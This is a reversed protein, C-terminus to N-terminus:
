NPRVCSAHLQTAALTGIRYPVTYPRFRAKRKSHCFGLVHCYEHLLQAALYEVGNDSVYRKNIHIVNKKDTTSAEENATYDFAVKLNIVNDAQTGEEQGSRILAIIEKNNKGNKRLCKVKLFAEEFEKSNVLTALLVTASDLKGAFQQDDFNNTQNGLSDFPQTQVKTQAMCLSATLILILTLLKM